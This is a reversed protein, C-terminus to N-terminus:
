SFEVQVKRDRLARIVDASSEATFGAAPWSNEIQVVFIADRWPRRWDMAFWIPLVGMGWTRWKGTFMSPALVRVMVIEDLPITKSVSPFYYNSIVLSEASIQVLPDSYM